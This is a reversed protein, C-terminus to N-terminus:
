SINYETIEQGKAVLIGKKPIKLTKISVFPDTVIVGGGGNLVRLLNTTFEQYMKQPPIWGQKESGLTILTVDITEQKKM